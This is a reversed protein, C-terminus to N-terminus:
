TRRRAGRRRRVGRPRRSVGRPRRRNATGSRSSARVASRGAPCATNSVEDSPTSARTTAASSARAAAAVHTRQRAAGIGPHGGAQRRFRPCPRASRRRHGSTCGKGAHRRPRARHRSGSRRVPLHARDGLELPLPYRCGGAPQSLSPPPVCPPSRRAPASRSRSRGRSRCAPPSGAGAASTAGNRRHSAASGPRWWRRRRRVPKHQHHGAVVAVLVFPLDRDCAQDAFQRRGGYAAAQDQQRHGVIRGGAPRRVEGSSPPLRFRLKRAVRAARGRLHDGVVDLPRQQRAHLHHDVQVRAAARQLIM